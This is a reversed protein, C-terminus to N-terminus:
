ERNMQPEISQYVQLVQQATQKWSFQGARNVGKETLSSSGTQNQVRQMADAIETVSTPNVLLAADGAIEPMAAADSTIVPTGCAMAELIPLGFSERLSPYLFAKAQQYFVPLQDAPIYGPLVMKKLLHASITSGVANKVQKETVDAVVLYIDPNMQAFQAFAQLVNAMNKKPDTNGLFFFFHEPLKYKQKVQGTVEPSVPQRFREHLGNYIVTIKEESLQLQRAINRQESHSVTIIRSANRAVPPVVYRRYYAGLRQYLTATNKGTQPELYIVDHLTLILPVPCNLPATNSTCHLVDLKYLRAFAPLKFQEWTLYNGARITMIRFNPTETLCNWDEDPQAFIFYQNQQDIQQLARMTELAVIDM